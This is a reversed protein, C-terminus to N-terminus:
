QKTWLSSDLAHNAFGAWITNEDRHRGGVTAGWWAAAAGLLLTAATLFGLVVAMKRARNTADKLQAITDDVRKAADAPALGTRAAVLEALYARDGASVITRGASRMLLRSMEGRVDEGRADIPPRTTRLLSDTAISIPESTRAGSAGAELGGRAVSAAVLAAVIAGTTVALGWVAVGHTGDRFEVETPTAGSRRHRMRGALYGGLGFAWIHVLIMWFAAGISVAVMSGRTSTWPSVATLGVAAGFTLLVFALALAVVAGVFVSPWEVYPSSEFGLGVQEATHRPANEANLTALVPAIRDM